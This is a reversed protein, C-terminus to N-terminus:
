VGAWVAGLIEDKSVVREAHTVLFILLDLVKPQIDVAANKKRLTYLGIDIEYTAFRPAVQDANRRQPSCGSREPDRLM